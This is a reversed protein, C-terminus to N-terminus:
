AANIRAIMVNRSYVTYLQMNKLRLVFMFSIHVPCVHTYIRCYLNAGRGDWQEFKLSCAYEVRVLVSASLEEVSLMFM